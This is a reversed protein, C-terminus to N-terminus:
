RLSRQIERILPGCIEKRRRPDRWDPAAIYEVDRLIKYQVITGADNRAEWVPPRWPGVLAPGTIIGREPREAAASRLALQPM